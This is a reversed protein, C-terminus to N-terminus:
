SNLDAEKFYLRDGNAENYDYSQNYKACNVYNSFVKGMNITKGIHKTNGMNDVVKIYGSKHHYFKVNDRNINVADTFDVEDKWNSKDKKTKPEEKKQEVEKVMTYFGKAKRQRKIFDLAEEENLFEKVKSPNATQIVKIM